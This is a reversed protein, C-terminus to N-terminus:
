EAEDPGLQMKEGEAGGTVNKKRPLPEDDADAGAIGRHDHESPLWSVHDAPGKQMDQAEKHGEVGSKREKIRKTKKETIAYPFPMMPEQVPNAHM